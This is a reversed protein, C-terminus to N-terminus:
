SDGFIQQRICDLFRQGYKHYKFKGVGSVSLMEEYYAELNKPM